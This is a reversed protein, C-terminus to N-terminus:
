PNSTVCCYRGFQLAIEDRHSCIIAREQSRQLLGQSEAAPSEDAALYIKGQHHKDRDAEREEEQAQHVLPQRQAGRDGDNVEIVRRERATDDAIESRGFQDVDGIACGGIGLTEFKDLAPLSIAEEDDRAIEHLISDASSGGFQREVGVESEEDGARQGVLAEHRGSDGGRSSEDLGGEGARSEEIVAGGPDHELRHDHVGMEDMVGPGVIGVIEGVGEDGAHIGQHYEQDCTEGDGGADLVASRLRPECGGTAVDVDGGEASESRLGDDEGEEAPSHLRHEVAEKIKGEVTRSQM